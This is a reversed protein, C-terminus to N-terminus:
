QPRSKNVHGIERGFIRAGVSNQSIPLNQRGLEGLHGKITLAKPTPEKAHLNLQKLNALYLYIVIPSNMKLVTWM